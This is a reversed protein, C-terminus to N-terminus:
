TFLVPLIHKPLNKVINRAAFLRGLQFAKKNRVNPVSGIKITFYERIRIKLSTNKHRPCRPNHKLAQRMM